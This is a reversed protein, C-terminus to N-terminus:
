EKVSKLASVQAAISLWPLIVIVAHRLCVQIITVQLTFAIHTFYSTPTMSNIGGGSIIITPM